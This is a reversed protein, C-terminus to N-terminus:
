NTVLEFPAKILTVEYKPGQEKLVIRKEKDVWMIVGSETDNTGIIRVVYSERGFVIESRLTEYVFTKVPNFEKSIYVGMSVNWKWNDHVALMWPKFLSIYPVSLTVNSGDGDTGDSKLCTGTQNVAELIYIFVCQPGQLTVLTLTNNTNNITYQYLYTEGPKILLSSQKTLPAENFVFKESIPPKFNSGIIVIGIFIILTILFMQSYIGFKMTTVENNKRLPVMRQM